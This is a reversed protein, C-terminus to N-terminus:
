AYSNPGDTQYKNEQQKKSLEFISREIFTRVDAVVIKVSTFKYEVSTILMNGSLANNAAINRIKCTHGPKISEIDYGLGFNSDAIELVVTNFPNKHNALYRAAFDNASNIDRYRNDSKVEILRGYSQQSTNDSYYKAIYNPDSSPLGNWFLLGNVTQAISKDFEIDIIDRGFMFLHTPTSLIQRLYVLNDSDLYWYWDSNTLEFTDRLADLYSNNNLTVRGNKGTSTISTSSYNVSAAPNFQKFRDIIDKMLAGIETSSYTKKYNGSNDKYVDRELRSIYGAVEVTVVEENSAAPTYSLIYGTYIQVGQAAEQDYAFVRVENNFDIISGEGFDDFKRPITLTLSGLGGNLSSSFSSIGFDYFFGKYVNKTIPAYNNTVWTPGNTLTGNKGNSSSDIATTGTNDDLRYYAILGSENGVLRRNLSSQIQTQTRAVNWIRAEDIAGNFYEQGMRVGFRCNSNSVNPTAFTGSQSGFNTIDTGNLYVKRNSGDWSFAIHYWVGASLSVPMNFDNAWFFFNMINASNVSIGIANNYTETGQFYLIGTGSFSDPRFWMEITFSPNGSLGLNPLSVWDNSGDLKLSSANDIEDKYVKIYVEKQGAM